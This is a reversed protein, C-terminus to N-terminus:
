GCAVKKTVHWENTDVYLIIINIHLEVHWIIINVHSLSHQLDVYNHQINAYILQM